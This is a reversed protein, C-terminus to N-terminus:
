VVLQALTPLFAVLTTNSYLPTAILTVAAGFGLPIYSALQRIGMAHSQVIGKPTGTTGSSYIINLGDEPEIDVPASTADASALWDDLRVTRVALTHDAFMAAADEDLFVAAADADEIMARLQDPTASPQIPAAVCGARLTGLFM